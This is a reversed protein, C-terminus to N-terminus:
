LRQCSILCLRTNCQFSPMWSYPSPLPAVPPSHLTSVSHLSINATSFTSYIRAGGRTHISIWSFMKSLTLLASTSIYVSPENEVASDIVIYRPLDFMLFLVYSNNYTFKSYYVTLLKFYCQRSKMVEVNLKYSKLEEHCQNHLICDEPINHQTARALVSLESSSIVEM